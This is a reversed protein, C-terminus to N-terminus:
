SNDADMLRSKGKTGIPLRDVSNGTGPCRNSRVDLDDLQVLRQAQDCLYLVPQGSPFHDVPFRKHLLHFLVLEVGQIDTWRSETARCHPYRMGRFHHRFDTSWKVPDWRIATAGDFRELRAGVSRAMRLVERYSSSAFVAGLDFAQNDETISRCMGGVRGLKEFVTVNKYGYRRLFHAASLGGPGAGLILIRAARDIRLTRRM